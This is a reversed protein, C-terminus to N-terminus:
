YNKEEFEGCFQVENELEIGIMKQVEQKIKKALDYVNQASASGTNIIFNAHKESVKAGGVQWGKMGLKDLLQGVSFNDGAQRGAVTEEGWKKEIKERIDKTLKVNKFFCGCSPETPYSALRTKKDRELENKLIEGEGSPFKFKAGIILGSGALDTKFRSSRYGFGCEDRNLIECRGAFDCWEVEYINDSISQRHAEANGYIAGGVTGPVNGLKELGAYNMASIKHAAVPLLTGGGIHWYDDIYEVFNISNKVVLGDFGRDSIILNSCAGIVFKKVPEIDVLERCFNYFDGKSKIEAYFKAEGGVKFWSGERM